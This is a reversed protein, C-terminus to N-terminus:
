GLRDRVEVARALGTLEFRRRLRPETCVVVLDGGASRARGAAGLLLGLGADDLASVGDLDVAVTAAGAEAVLRLLADHLRPLSALDLEGELVLARLEGLQV